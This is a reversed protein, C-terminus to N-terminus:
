VKQNVFYFTSFNKNSNNNLRLKRKEEHQRGFLLLRHRSSSPLSCHWCWSRCCSRRQGHHGAFFYNFMFKLDLPNAFNSPHTLLCFKSTFKLFINKNKKNKKGTNKATMITLSRSSFALLTGEHRNYSFHLSLLSFSTIFVM